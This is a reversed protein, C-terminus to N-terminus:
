NDGPQRLSALLDSEVILWRKGIRKGPIKGNRLWKRVTNAPVQMIEASQEVTLIRETM